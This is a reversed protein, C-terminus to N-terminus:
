PHRGSPVRPSLTRCRPVMPEANKQNRSPPRPTGCSLRFRRRSFCQRHPSSEQGAAATGGAWGCRVPLSMDEGAKARATRHDRRLPQWAFVATIMDQRALIASAFV